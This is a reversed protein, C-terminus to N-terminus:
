CANVADLRGCVRVDKALKRKSCVTNTLNLWAHRMFFSFGQKEVPFLNELCAAFLQKSFVKM